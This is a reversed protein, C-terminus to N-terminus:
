KNTELFDYADTVAAALQSVLVDAVGLSMIWRVPRRDDDVFDPEIFTLVIAQDGDPQKKANVVSLARVQRLDYVQDSM